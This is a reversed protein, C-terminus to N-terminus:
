GNVQGQHPHSDGKYIYLNTMRVKRLKNNPLMGSVARRIAETPKKTMLEKLTESKVGGPFGTHRHYVKNLVKTGSVRIKESNIVVVKDGVNINPTFIAKEKGTLKKAIDTALKGLVKGDADILHWNQVINKATPTYTKKM